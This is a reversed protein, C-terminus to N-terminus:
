GFTAPRHKPRDGHLAARITAGVPSSAADTVLLMYPGLMFKSSPDLPPQAMFRPHRGHHPQAAHVLFPRCLFVDGARGTALTVPRHKSAAAM